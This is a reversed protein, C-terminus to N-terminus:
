QGTVKRREEIKLTTEGCKPCWRNKVKSVFLGAWFGLFLAGFVSGILMGVGLLPRPMGRGPAPEEIGRVGSLGTIVFRPM